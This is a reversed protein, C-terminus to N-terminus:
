PCTYTLLKEGVRGDSVVTRVTTINGKNDRIYTHSRTEDPYNSTKATEKIILNKSNKGFYMGLVSRSSGFNNVANGVPTAEATQSADYEYLLTTTVPQPGGYQGVQNVQVLNGNQFTFTITTSHPGNVEKAQALYGESNYTFSTTGNKVIRGNADLEYVSTGNGLATGGVVIRDASYTYTEYTASPKSDFDIRSVRGKDDYTYYFARITSGNYIERFSALSCTSSISEETDNSKSCAMFLLPLVFWRVLKLPSVMLSKKAINLHLNQLHM